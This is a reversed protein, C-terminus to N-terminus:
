QDFEFCRNKRIAIVDSKSAPAEYGFGICMMNSLAKFLSWYYREAATFEPNNLGRLVVWSDKPFEQLQPVFYVFCAM